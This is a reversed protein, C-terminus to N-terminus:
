THCTNCKLSSFTWSGQIRAGRQVAACEHLTSRVGVSGACVDITQVPVSGYTRTCSYRAWLFCGVGRPGGGPGSCGMDCTPASYSHYWRARTPAMDVFQLWILICSLLLSILSCSAYWHARNFTLDVLLLWILTCSWSHYWRTPSMDIHARTVHSMCDVTCPFTNYKYKYLSLSRRTSPCPSACRSSWASGRWSGTVPVEGLLGFGITFM